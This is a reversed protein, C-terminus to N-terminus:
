REVPEYLNVGRQWPWMTVEIDIKGLAEGVKGEFIEIKRPVDTELLKCTERISAILKVRTTM